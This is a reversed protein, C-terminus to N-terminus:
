GCSSRRDGTDRSAGVRLGVHGRAFDRLLRDVREHGEVFEGRVGLSGDHLGDSARQVFLVVVISEEAEARFERTRPWQGGVVPVPRM